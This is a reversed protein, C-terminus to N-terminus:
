NLLNSNLKNTIHQYKGKLLDTTNFDKNSFLEFIKDGIELSNYYKKICSTICKIEAPDLKDSHLNSFCRKGCQNVVISDLRNINKLTDITQQKNDDKTITISILQTTM